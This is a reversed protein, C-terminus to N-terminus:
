LTHICVFAIYIYAYVCVYVCILMTTHSLLLTTAVRCLWIHIYIRIYIHTYTCIHYVFTGESVDMYTHTYVYMYLIYMCLCMYLYVGHYSLALAHNGASAAIVGKSKQWIKECSLDVFCNECILKVPMEEVQKYFKQITLKSSTKWFLIDTSGVKSFTKGGCCSRRQVETWNRVLTRVRWNWLCKM